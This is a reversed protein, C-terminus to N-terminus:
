KAHICRTVLWGWAEKREGRRKMRKEKKKVEWYVQSGEDRGRGYGFDEDEKKMM